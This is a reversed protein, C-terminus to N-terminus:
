FFHVLELGAGAAPFEPLCDGEGNFPWATEGTTLEAVFVAGIYALTPGTPYILYVYRMFKRKSLIQIHQM